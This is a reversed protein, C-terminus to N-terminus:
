NVVTVEYEKIQEYEEMVIWEEDSRAYIYSLRHRRRWKRIFVRRFSINFLGTHKEGTLRDKDTQKESGSLFRLPNLSVKRGIPM